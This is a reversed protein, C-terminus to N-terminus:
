RAEQLIAAPKRPTLRALVLRRCETCIYHRVGYKWLGRCEGNLDEFWCKNGHGADYNRFCWLKCFRCSQYSLESATANEIAHSFRAKEVAAQLANM